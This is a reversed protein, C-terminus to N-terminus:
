PRQWLVTCLMSHRCVWALTLTGRRDRVRLVYGEPKAFVRLRKRRHDVAFMSLLQREDLLPMRDENELAHRARHPLTFRARTQM